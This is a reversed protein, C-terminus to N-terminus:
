VFARGALAQGSIGTPFGLYNEIRSSAGAQGGIVSTDLVMVSLGESAAYVAAALGAPGAGVIAVDYVHGPRIPPLMGLRLALERETPNKLTTGDPCVVLPLEDADPAYLKMVEGACRDSAPDLVTYPHGNRLLFGQLRVMDPGGQPAILVPGGTGTEILVVRRLILARMIREGLEAEAVVLARLSPPDIVLAEVVGVARATVLAPGGSLQAVDATFDGPLYELVPEELGLGNKRTITVQGRLLVLMALGPKCAEFLVQGRQWQHVTGFRRLRDIEAPELKPFVQDLRSALHPPLRAALKERPVHIDAHDDAHLPEFILPKDPADNM